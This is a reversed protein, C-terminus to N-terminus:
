DGHLHEVGHVRKRFVFAQQNEGYPLIREKNCGNSKAHSKMEHDEIDREESYAGIREM